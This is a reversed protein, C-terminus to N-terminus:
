ELHRKDEGDEKNPQLMKVIEETLQIFRVPDNENAAEDCLRNWRERDRENM